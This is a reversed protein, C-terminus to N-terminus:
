GHEVADLLRIITPPAEILEVRDDDYEVLGKERLSPLALHHLDAAIRDRSETPVDEPACDLVRATVQRELEARAVPGDAGRLYDLAHRRTPNALVDFAEDVTIPSEGGDARLRCFVWRDPGVGAYITGDERRM